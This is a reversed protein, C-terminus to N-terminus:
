AIVAPSSRSWGLTLLLASVTLVLGLVIAAPLAVTGPFSGSAIVLGVGNNRLITSEAMAIRMAKGHGGMLWSIALGAIVLVLMGVYGTLKVQALLHYRLSLVISLTILNLVLSLRNAPKLLRAAVMPWRARVMMGLTLPLLQAVLLAGIMEGLDVHLAHDGSSFWPLLVGLLAPSFLVSSAALAVSLGTATALHGHAIKTFPPSYHSGPCVAIILFGAVAMPHPHFLLLLAVAVAPFLVYNAIGARLLLRWDKVVAEIEVWTLELGIAVAMEFLTVITLLNIIQDMSM